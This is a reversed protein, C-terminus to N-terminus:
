KWIKGSLMMKEFEEAPIPKSFFYGQAYDCGMADLLDLQDPTEVGEAVVKMRLKHAMVVIAECLTADNPDSTMDRVFSQDIKIYDISYRKLYSLSSYGTGFDDLSIQLGARRMALLREMTSSETDLLLGETIEIAIRSGDLDIAKLYDMWTSFHDAVSHFQVPSANISIQFDLSDLRKALNATERFVWNGIEVIMGTEEALPIFDMPSIMGHEPHEWRLLAEAKHVLGSALDVIPQYHIRFQGELLATRMDSAMRLRKLAEEQLAPTFYSFRNRGKNKAAYMAQDANKILNHADSADNPYFTIGISASIYASEKDLHFPNALKLIIEQAVREIRTEDTLGALIVTFEDGGLRAVTDSERVCSIIRRAAEVLLEDGVHHGLTDNIEKFRDLDIFFLGLATANRQAKKIETELRERFMNRNPLQTLPDFNAQRWIMEDSQKKKTIDSFLAVRQRVQGEEDYITSITMWEAILEGNKRRDWIEGQWEGTDSISQWMERYFESDHRGSSLINPNRGLVEEATYGTLKTFAPNIAIIRHQADTVTMAESINQFVTMALRKEEDMHKRETIDRCFVFLRGGEMPWFSVIVEVPWVTGDKKRHFSEFRDYGNKMVTEIHAATDETSEKAELDPIRMSLLEERSYGSLKAYTDNVELLRGEMDVIWFGEASTEIVGRYRAERAALESELRKRESVDRVVSLIREEGDIEVRRANIEVPILTGDKRVHASEFVTHGQKRVEAVREPVKPAFEPPDFEAIRRGVMEEKEYGLKEYWIRNVDLVRGENSLLLIGDNAEDFILRFKLEGAKLEKAFIENKGFESLIRKTIFLVLSSTLAVLLGILWLFDTVMASSEKAAEVSYSGGQKKAFSVVYDINGRIREFLAQGDGVIIQRAERDKGNEALDFIRARIRQWDDMQRDIEDVRSMDGLFASHITKLDARISKELALTESSFAQFDAADSHMHLEMMANRMQIIDAKAQLATNSVLFPHNYLDSSISRLHRVASVIGIGTGIILMLILFYTLSILLRVNDKKPM